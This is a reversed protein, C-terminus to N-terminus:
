KEKSNAQFSGHQMFHDGTKSKIRSLHGIQRVLIVNHYKETGILRNVNQIRPAGSRVIKNVEKSTESIEEMLTREKTLHM